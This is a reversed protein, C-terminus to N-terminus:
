LIRMFLLVIQFPLQVNSLHIIRLLSPDKCRVAERSTPKKRWHYVAPRIFINIGVTKAETLNKLSDPFTGEASFNVFSHIYVTYIKISTHCIVSEILQLFSLCLLFCCCCFHFSSSYFHYQMGSAFCEGSM